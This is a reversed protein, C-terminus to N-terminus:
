FALLEFLKWVTFLLTLTQLTLILNYSVGYCSRAEVCIEIFSVQLITNNLSLYVFFNCNVRLSHSHM